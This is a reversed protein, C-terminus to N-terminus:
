NDEIVVSHAIELAESPTLGAQAALWCAVPAATRQSSHAASGAVDLITSLDDVSPMEVGLKEAFVRLWDDASIV